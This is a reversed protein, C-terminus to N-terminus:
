LVLEQMLKIAISIDNSLFFWVLGFGLFQSLSFQLFCWFVIKTKQCPIHHAENMEGRHALYFMRLISHALYFM